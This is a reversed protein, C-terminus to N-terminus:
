ESGEIRKKIKWNEGKWEGEILLEKNFRKEIKVIVGGGYGDEEIKMEEKMKIGKEVIENIEEIEKNLIRILDKRNGYVKNREVIREFKEKMEIKKIRMGRIKKGILKEIREGKIRKGWKNCIIKKRYDDRKVKRVDWMLRGEKGRVVWMRMVGYNWGRYIRNIFKRGKEVKIIGKKEVWVIVDEMKDRRKIIM